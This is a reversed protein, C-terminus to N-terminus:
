YKNRYRMLTAARYHAYAYSLTDPKVFANIKHNLVSLKEETLNFLTMYM